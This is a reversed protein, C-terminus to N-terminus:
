WGLYRPLWLSLVPMTALMALRLCDGLVFPLVGKFITTVPTEPQMGKLVFVNIGFPPTIMGLEVVVVNIVGWWLPDYGMGIILPYVIPLTLVMAAVTDFIAGLRVYFLLLAAIVAAPPLELGKVHGGVIM